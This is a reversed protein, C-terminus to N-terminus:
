LTGVGNLYNQVELFDGVSIWDLLIFNPYRDYLANCENVEAMISAEGNTTSAATEDPIDIGFIDVDLFHNVLYMRGTASGGAPRNVSCDPFSSDTVFIYSTFEPLIYSVSTGSPYDMFVVLRTGDDILEGLTPWEDLTLTSGPSYAYADAGATEFAEAFVSNDIGDGNTILLTVVEDPNAELFTVVTELWTVLTGADEEACSTHCLEIVGDDNHSQAQLFRVGLSLQDSVSDFQNDVLLIGDFASDHSGIFTVNSYLKDCLESYGNCVTAATAGSALLALTTTIASSSPSRM